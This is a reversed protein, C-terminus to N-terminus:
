IGKILEQLTEKTEKYTVIKPAKILDIWLPKINEHYDLKQKYQNIDKLKFLFQYVTQKIPKHKPLQYYYFSPQLEKVLKLNCYGTEECIERYAAQLKTEGQEIKGKPIGVFGRKINNILLVKNEHIVFGGASYRKQYQKKILKIKARKLQNNSDREDFIDVVIKDVSIQKGIVSKLIKKLDPLIQKQNGSEIKGLTIHPEFLALVRAYGYQKIYEQQQRNYYNTKLREIDEVRILDGRLINTTQLVIKHLNYFPKLPKVDLYYFNKNVKIEGITMQFSSFNLWGRLNACLNSFNTKDFACIYLSIHPPQMYENDVTTNLCDKAKSIVNKIKGTLDIRIGVKYKM